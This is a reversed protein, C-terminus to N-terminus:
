MRDCSRRPDHGVNSFSHDPHLHFAIERSHIENKQRLSLAKDMNTFCCCGETVFLLIIYPTVQNALSSLSREHSKEYTIECEIAETIWVWYFYTSLELFLCSM